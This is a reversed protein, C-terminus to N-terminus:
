GERFACVRKKLFDLFDDAYLKGTGESVVPLDGTATPSTLDLCFVGDVDSHCIPIRDASGHLRFMRVVDGGVVEDFDQGYISFIEEGGIEGGGYNRLWWKYDKPLSFGLAAEARRIWEENIGDGYDAFEVVSSNTDIFERLEEFRDM